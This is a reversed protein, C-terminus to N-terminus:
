DNLEEKIDNIKHLYTFGKLPRINDPLIKIPLTGYKINKLKLYSVLEELSIENMKDYFTYYGYLDNDTIYLLARSVDEAHTLNIKQNGPSLLTKIPNEERTLLNHVKPRIDKAGYTDSLEVFTVKDHKFIKFLSKSKEKILSYTNLPEYEHKYNFASFTTTMVIHTDRSTNLLLAIIFNYNDELLKDLTKKDEKGSFYAALHYIRSYDELSKSFTYDKDNYRVVDNLINKRDEKIQSNERVLGDIIKNHSESLTKLLYGSLFGNIGTILVKEKM